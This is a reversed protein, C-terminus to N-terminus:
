ADKFRDRFSTAFVIFSGLILLGNDRYKTWIIPPEGGCGCDLTDTLPLGLENVRIVIATTFVLLMIMSTMSAGRLFVGFIMCLGVTVELWPLLIAVSNLYFPPDTPIMNYQNISKGFEFPDAIKNKALYIFVCGIAIRALLIAIRQFTWDPTSPAAVLPDNKLM